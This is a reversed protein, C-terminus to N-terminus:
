LRDGATPKLLLVCVFGAATAAVAIIHRPGVSDWLGALLPFALSGVSMGLAALGYHLGTNKQGFLDTVVAPIVAAEGSYCFALACYVVLVWWSSAFWFAVSAACLAAFLILDAARRGIKDSCWPMLLRGAASFVAGVAVCSLAATEPLGRAQGLEVIIPSFLLMAPTALCVAATLLWYQPTKLLQPVTYEQTGPTQANAGVAKHKNPKKGASKQQQTSSGAKKGQPAGRRAQDARRSAAQQAEGGAGAGNEQPNELVICATGCVLAMAAGLVWFATRVDWTRILFRGALTLVAGSLGVAGGIIGTAFGKKEAYWKQACAMVAPYLLACGLGVPVSFAVYFLWPTEAPVFAAAVFGVALLVTGALGAVRPGKKDQLLGGLVCGIGFACIVFSFILAASQQSLAYDECVARQFVGWAAPVGTLIQIAAGAALVVWRHSRLFAQVCM